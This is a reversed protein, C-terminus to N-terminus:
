SADLNWRDMWVESRNRIWSLNGQNEDPSESDPKSLGAPDLRRILDLLLIRIWMDMGVLSRLRIWGFNGM